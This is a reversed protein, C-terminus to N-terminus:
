IRSKNKLTLSQELTWGRKLRKAISEGSIGILEGWETYSLKKGNFDLYVTSRRNRCQEKHTIWKCNDKEYNGDNNIRELTLKDGYGDKM